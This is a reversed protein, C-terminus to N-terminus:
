RPLVRGDGDYAFHTGGGDPGAAGVLRGAANVSYLRVLMLLLLSRM